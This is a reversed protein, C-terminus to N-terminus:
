AGIRPVPTPTTASCSVGRPIVARRFAKMDSTVVVSRIRWRDPPRTGSAGGFSRAAAYGASQVAAVVTADEVGFPYAFFRPPEGLHREIDRRSGAVEKTLTGAARTLFPHTRSHSEISMGADRMERLQEWTVFRADRGIPSTFVFFTAPMGLRKLVPFAHQYQNEWGDDFTIVVGSAPLKARGDLADVFTRFPVVDIGCQRLLLMQAEFTSPDVDFQRQQRTQGPHQPAVSHYVLIPVHAADDLPAPSPTLAMVGPFVVM